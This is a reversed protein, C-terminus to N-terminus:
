FFFGLDTFFALPYYFPEDSRFLASGSLDLKYHLQVNRNVTTRREGAFVPLVYQRALEEKPLRITRAQVHVIFFFTFFFFTIITRSVKIM